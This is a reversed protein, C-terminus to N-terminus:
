EKYCMGCALHVVGHAGAEPHAPHANVDTRERDATLQVQVSLTILKLDPDHM